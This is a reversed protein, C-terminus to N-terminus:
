PVFRHPKDGILRDRGHMSVQRQRPEDLAIQAAGLFLEGFGDASHGREAERLPREAVGVHAAILDPHADLGALEIAGRLEDVFEVICAFRCPKSKQTETAAVWRAATLASDANAPPSCSGSANRGWMSIM